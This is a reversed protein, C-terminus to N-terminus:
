KWVKHIRASISKGANAHAENSWLAILMLSECPHFNEPNNSFEPNQPKSEM